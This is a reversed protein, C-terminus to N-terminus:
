GGVTFATQGLAAGDPGQVSVTWAGASVRKQSWTRWRDARVPLTVRFVEVGDKSWVHVVEGLSAAGTVDSFVTVEATGAPFAEAAGVPERDQIGTCAVVRDAKAAAFACVGLAVLVVAAFTKMIPAM